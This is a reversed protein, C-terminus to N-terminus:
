ILINIDRIGLQKNKKNYTYIIEVIHNKFGTPATDEGRPPWVVLEEFTGGTDVLLSTMQKTKSAYQRTSEDVVYSITAITGEMEDQMKQNNSLIQAIRPLQNGDYYRLVGKEVKKVWPSMENSPPNVGIKPLIMKRLDASVVTILKKKIMFQDVTNLDRYLDPVPDVKSKGEIEAKIKMYEYIKDELGTSQDFFSDLVGSAILGCVVGQNVARGISKTKAVFERLNKYPRGEVIQEYAKPGIGNLIDLPSCIRNNRITFTSDFANINPLDVLHGCYPWFKPLENKTANRLVATWWELEFKTKLYQCAYSIYAYSIAHSKNFSYRSAAMIQSVLLDVQKETWGREVCKIKLRSTAEKLEKEKKKGIARRVAEAEEESYGALDRFIRIQQEQFLQVGYTDKLIPELDPHVYSIPEEGLARSVYLDALTRDTGDGAPADLCGPRCLAQINAIEDISKPKLKIVFPAVTATHLQFVTENKGDGIAKYVDKDSPLNFIDIDIGQTEKIIKLCNSIDNLTNVGLLDYKVLGAAEVWAPSPGTVISNGATTIPVYDSVPTPTIVLGCAHGSKQRLVGLSKVIVDWIKPNDVSYQHLEPMTEIVGPIHGEESEKGFVYEYEDMGQPPNPISTCLKETEPRVKGLIAREADKIASKIKSMVDISIQYIRNQYKDKLYALAASRDGVDMDLDPLTNAQIRGKSIFRAFSLDHKLPNINSIGLLYVLFSGGASGRLNTLLNQERAWNSFDIFPEFYPLVDIKGNKHLVSIELKLREVMQPNSWDMRGMKKIQSLCMAMSDSVNPLVWRDENTKLSFDKFEEVWDYNNQILEQITAESIKKSILFNVIDASTMVPKRTGARDRLKLNESKMNQVVIDNPDAYQFDMSIVPKIGLTKSCLLLFTNLARQYDGDPSMQNPEFEKYFAPRIIEQKKFDYMPPVWYRKIEHPIIESRLNEGFKNKLFLIAKKALDFNGDEIRKGVIGGLGGTGVIIDDKINELFDWSFLTHSRAGSTILIAESESWGCVAKFAKENKFQITILATDDTKQSFPDLVYGQIGIIPKIGHKQAKVYFEFAGNLNGIEAMCVAPVSDSKLKSLIDDVSSAGVASYHSCGLFCPIPRINNM